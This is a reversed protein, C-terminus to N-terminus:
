LLYVFFLVFHILIFLNSWVLGPLTSKSAGSGANSGGSAGPPVACTDQTALITSINLSTYGAYACTTSNCSNVSTTNGISVNTSCEMSPCVRWNIPKLQSPECQLIFKNSSDCKCKVCENATYVYTGNAVLLPSDLSDNRVNSSCAQLPVDLIQGAQLSKPDTIGNITLLIQETTGYQQAIGGMTNGSEVVHAYHVVSSGGVQDCSCPLPIWIKDGATINNADPIKKINATQIQQYKLLGAFVTTAIDFLTDGPRIKYVPVQNSLGTGDSCKCPFPVKVVENPGVKHSGNTNSPLNNAGLIDPLHKVSFLTQVRRLTTGNPNTYDILARCTANETACKFHAEPQAETLGVGAIVIIVLWVCVKGVGM